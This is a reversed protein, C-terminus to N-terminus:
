ENDSTYTTIEVSQIIVDAEPKDNTGTKVGAIADVVDMGAYVQGFVTHGGSSRWAGDLHLNGGYQAYLEWVEDPVLRSDPSLGGNADIFSEITPYMATFYDGYYTVYQNYYSVMSAYLTEFDYQAKLQEATKGTPGGQNIFFQSGNTGPGANAMALSGRLNLLKDNFEDEFKGGEYISSGGTGDGKEFDGGQIMFDKIVRHFIVGNYKGQQALTIFNEVTKPAAEPFLRIAIDGMNTHIIAVTDGENPAYLQFGYDEDAYASTLDNQEAPPIDNTNASPTTSSPTGTTSVTTDQKADDKKLTDDGCATLCGCLLITAMLLALWKVNKMM